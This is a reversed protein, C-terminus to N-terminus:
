FFFFSGVTVVLRINVDLKNLVVRFLFVAVYVFFPCESRTVLPPGAPSQAIAQM